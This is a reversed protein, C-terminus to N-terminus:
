YMMFALDGKPMPAGMLPHTLIPDVGTIRYLLGEWNEKADGSNDEDEEHIGLLEKCLLLTEKRNRNSLIGYHQCIDM